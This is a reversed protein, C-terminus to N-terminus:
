RCRTRAQASRAGRGPGAARGEVKFRARRRGPLPAAGPRTPLLQDWSATVTGPEHVLSAPVGGATFRGAAALVLPTWCPLDADVPVEFRGPAHPAPLYHSRVARRLAPRVGGHGPPVVLGRRQETPSFRHLRDHNRYTQARTAADVRERLGRLTAASWALKGLVDFTMQLRRAPGRYGDQARHQHARVVGDSYNGAMTELADLGRRLWAGARESALGRALALASLEITLATALVGTSRGWPIAAGDPTGVLDVLELAARAGAEWLPGLHVALPECFLWIDATYIDYRGCGDGSDDLYHWPNESLLTRLREVARDVAVADELLGLRQRALECRAYVAAFNRPLTDGLQRFWDTSDCALAM